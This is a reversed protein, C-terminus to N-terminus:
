AAPMTVSKARLVAGGGTDNNINFDNAAANVFPDATLVSFGENIFPTGSINGSTNNYGACNFMEFGPEHNYGYGGCNVAICNFIHSSYAGSVLDFGDSGCGYAILGIYIATATTLIHGSGPCLIAINYASGVGPNYFGKCSGTGGEAVCYICTANYFNANSGGTSYCEIYVGSMFGYVINSCKCKYFFSYTNGVPGYSCSGGGLTGDFELNVTNTHLDGAAGIFGYIYNSGLVQNTTIIPKTGRDGRTTQYGEVTLFKNYGVIYPRGGSILATSSTITYTGSKIWVYMGGVGHNNLLKGMMGPSALAGGVSGTGSAGNTGDTPDRDLTVTNTDTRAIIQYWGATFHTGSKIQILNGIMAATFGGTASTLVAGGTTCALDTLTLQAAAQQSYDTGSAGTVFGGGNDDNGDTRVEIVTAASLAM